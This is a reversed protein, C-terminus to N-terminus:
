FHIDKYGDHAYYAAPLSGGSVSSIFDVRQLIEKHKLEIIVQTALIASRSGGGSLTLGVFM